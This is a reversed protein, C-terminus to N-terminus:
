KKKEKRKKEKRKKEKKITSISGLDQEHSALPRGSLWL